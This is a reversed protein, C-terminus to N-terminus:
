NSVWVASAHSQEAATVLTLLAAGAQNYARYEVYDGVNLFVLMTRGPIALAQALTAAILVTSATVAAANVWWQGGRRGDVDSAYSSAAAVLYWGPYVATLRSTNSSTSHMGTSDVDEATFTLATYAADALSQAVIQRVQCIAPALLWGIPATLNNNMYGQTVVEGAVWTRTVPVTAM